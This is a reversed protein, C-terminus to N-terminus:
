RAINREASGIVNGSTALFAPVSFNSIRIVVLEMRIDTVLKMNIDTNTVLFFLIEFATDIIHIYYFYIRHQFNSLLGLGTSSPPPHFPSPFPLKIRNETDSPWFVASGM